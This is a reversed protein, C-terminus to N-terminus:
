VWTSWKWYVQMRAMALSTTLLRSMHWNTHSLTLSSSMRPVQQHISWRSADLPAWNFLKDFLTLFGTVLHKHKPFDTTTLQSLDPSTFLNAIHTKKKHSVGHDTNYLVRKMYLAFLSTWNELQQKSIGNEQNVIKCYRYYLINLKVLPITCWIVLRLGVCMLARMIIINNLHRCMKHHCHEVVHQQAKTFQVCITVQIATYHLKTKASSRPELM